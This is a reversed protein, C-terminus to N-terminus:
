AEENKLQPLSPRRLMASLRKPDSSLPKSDVVPRTYRAEALTPMVRASNSQYVPRDAIVSDDVSYVSADDDDDNHDDAITSEAVPVETRRAPLLKRVSAQTLSPASSLARVPSDYGMFDFKTPSTLMTTEKTRKELDYIANKVKSPHRLPELKPSDGFEIISSSTIEPLLRKKRIRMTGSSVVIPEPEPEPMAQALLDRSPKKPLQRHSGNPANSGAAVARYTAPALPKFDHAIPPDYVGGLNVAKSHFAHPESQGSPLALTRTSTMPPTPLPPRPSSPTPISHRVPTASPSDYKFLLGANPPPTRPDTSPLIGSKKTPSMFTRSPAAPLDVVVRGPRPMPKPGKPSLPLRYDEKVPISEPDDLYRSALSSDGVRSEGLYADLDVDDDEDIGQLGAYPGSQDPNPSYISPSPIRMSSRTNTSGDLRPSVLEIRRPKSSWGWGGLMRKGADLATGAAAGLENPAEWRGNSMNGSEIDREDVRPLTNFFRNFDIARDEMPPQFPRDEPGGGGHVFSYSVARFPLSPGESIESMTDDRRRQGRGLSQRIFSWKSSRRRVTALSSKESYDDDGVFKGGVVLGGEEDYPDGRTHRRQRQRRRIFVLTAIIIFPVLLLLLTLYIKKFGVGNTTSFSDQSAVGITATATSIPTGVVMISRNIASSTSPPTTTITAAAESAPPPQTSTAEALTAPAQTTQVVAAASTAQVAPDASTQAQWQTTTAAAATSQEVFAQTTTYDVDETTTPSWRPTASAAPATTMAPAPTNSAPSTWPVYLGDNYSFTSTAAM